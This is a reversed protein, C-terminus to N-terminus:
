PTFSINSISAGSGEGMAGSITVTNGVQWNGDWEPATVQYVGNGLDTLTGNWIQTIQRTSTFQIKWGNEYAVGTNNTLNLSFTAGSGWDATIDLESTIAGNDSANATNGGVDEGTSDNNSNQSNGNANDQAPYTVSILKWDQCNAGNVAFQQVNAGSSTEANVVEVASADNTTKTLIKYSGDSNKQLKFLQADAGTAVWIQVNTKNSANNNAVDLLYTNGDAIQSYLYYYDNGAYKLKWTNHSAPGYAGWQQVNTGNTELAGAVEMYLGSNVNQIMYYGESVPPTEVKESPVTGVEVMYWSQNLSGDRTWAVINAGWETSGSAVGVCSKDQSVATTIQYTGDGNAVFKFKQANTGNKEYIQINTGNNASGDAVDLCYKGTDEVYSRIVYYGGGAYELKWTNWKQGESASWQQVNTKNSANGNAVDLYLNSGVNKIMYVKTEDFAHAATSTTGYVANSKEESSGDNAQVNGVNIEKLFPSKYSYAIWGKQDSDTIFHIDSAKSKCGANINCYTKADYGNSKYGAVVEYGYVSKADHWKKGSAKKNLISPTGGVNKSTYSQYDYSSDGDGVVEKGYYGEFRNAETFVVSGEGPIIEASADPNSSGTVTYLSSYNHLTGNGIQPTRRSCQEWRNFMMTSRVRSKDTNQSGYAVTWFRNKFSCYSITIYDPNIKNYIGDSWDLAPTNIWIFKGVENNRNQGFTASFSCHDLWINRGGYIYLCIVGCGRSNLTRAVFNINSIVINNSPKDSASGGEDDNRLQSDYFTKNGYSGIITKNDRIRQKGSGLGNFDFNGNAVITLTETSNMYSLLDARNNAVVTRGLLGGITGAKEKGSILCNAGYGELGNLNLKYKQYTAGNYNSLAFNNKEASFTLAKNNDASSVIKYYLGYGEFDNQVCVINFRQSAKDQDKELCLNADNDTMLLGTASNKIEYNGKSVYTISWKDTDNGQSVESCLINGSNTGSISVNRNTDGIGFHVESVPYSVGSVSGSAQAYVTSSELSFDGLISLSLVSAVTLIVSLGKGLLKNKM